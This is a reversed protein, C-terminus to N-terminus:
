KISKFITTNRGSLFFLSNWPAGVAPVAVVVKSTQKYQLKQDVSLDKFVVSGM